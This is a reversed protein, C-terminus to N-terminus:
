NFFKLQSMFKKSSIPIFAIKELLWHILLERVVSKIDFISGNETSYFYKLTRVTSIDGALWCVSVEEERM